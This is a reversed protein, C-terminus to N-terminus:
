NTTTKKQKAPLTNHDDDPSAFFTDSDPPVAFVPVTIVAGLELLGSVFESLVCLELAIALRLAEMEHPALAEVEPPSSELRHPPILVEEELVLGVQPEDVM